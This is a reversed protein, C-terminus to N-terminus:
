LLGRKQLVGPYLGEVFHFMELLGTMLSLAKLPSSDLRIRGALYADRLGIKGLWVNHLVDAALTLGVDVKGDPTRGILFRPPVSRGDVVLITDPQSTSIRLLVKGDRLPKFLDPTAMVQSFLDGMVGYFTEADTYFPM